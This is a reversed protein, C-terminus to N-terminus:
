SGPLWAGVDSHSVVLQTRGAEVHALRRRRWDAIMSASAPAMETAAVAWGDILQRQQDAKDPGVSWDSPECRVRYGTEAFCRAAVAAADPGAASGGLGKDTRQHDNFLDLVLTDDADVPSCFTRGTYTITFLAAAGSARCREALSRLWRASVLDLLASATVLHRNAFVEVADLTGLDLQRTEVLCELTPAHIVCGTAQRTVRYGCAVGWEAMRVPLQELLTASRDVALWHQRGGLRPVLYRLNSGTGTALDLLRMPDPTAMADGIAQVLAESRAEADALERLALWESLTADDM